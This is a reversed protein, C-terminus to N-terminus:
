TVYNICSSAKGIAQLSSVLETGTHPRYTCPHGLSERDGDAILVPSTSRQVIVEEGALRGEEDQVKMKRMRRVAQGNSLALWVRGAGASRRPYLSGAKEGRREAARKETGLVSAPGHPLWQM